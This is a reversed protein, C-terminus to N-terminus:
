IQQLGFLCHGTQTQCSCELEYVKWVTDLHVERLAAEISALWIHCMPRSRPRAARGYAYLNSFHVLWYNGNPLAIWEHLPEGRIEDMERTYAKLMSRILHIPAVRKRVGQMGTASVNEELSAQTVDSGWRRLQEIPNEPRSFAVAQNLCSLYEVPLAFADDMSPWDVQRRFQALGVDCMLMEWQEASMLNYTAQLVQRFHSNRLRLQQAVRPQVGYTPLVRSVMSQNTMKIDSCTYPIIKWLAELLRLCSLSALHFPSAQSNAYLPVKDPVNVPLSIVPINLGQKYMLQQLIRNLFFQHQSSIQGLLVAQIATPQDLSRQFAKVPNAVILPHYNALTLIRALRQAREEDADIVLLSPYVLTTTFKAVQDTQRLLSRPPMSRIPETHIGQRDFPARNPLVDSDM